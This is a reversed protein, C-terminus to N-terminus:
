GRLQAISARVDDYVDGKSENAKPALATASSGRVSIAAKTAKAQKEAVKAVQTQSSQQSREAILADRVEQNLWIARDYAAQLLAGGSLSPNVAKLQTMIEPLQDEVKEYHPNKEAFSNVVSLNQDILMGEIRQELSSVRPDVQPVQETRMPMQAPPNTALEALNLGNKQALWLIAQVPQTELFRNGDLLRQIGDVVSMGRRQAEQAVPALAQEYNRVQESYQRIGNSAEQERKLVAAQVAPSLSAWQGKADAAWSVPPAGAATSPQPASAKTNDSPPIKEAVPAAVKAPAVDKAPKATDKAIFKGSDDRQREDAKPEPKQEGEPAAEAEPEQVEPAEPEEGKLSAIAARVDDNADERANFEKDDAM